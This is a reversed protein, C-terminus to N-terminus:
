LRTIGLLYVFAFHRNPTVNIEINHSSINIYFYFIDNLNAM